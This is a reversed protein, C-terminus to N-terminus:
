EEEEKRLVYTYTYSKGNYPRNSVPFKIYAADGLWSGREVCGSINLAFERRLKRVHMQWFVYMGTGTVIIRIHIGRRPHSSADCMRNVAAVTTM